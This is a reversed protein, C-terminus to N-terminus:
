SNLLTRFRSGIVRWSWEREMWERGKKGMENRVNQNELLEQLTEALLEPNRGDRVLGTLGDQVADPAGGSNGAIV